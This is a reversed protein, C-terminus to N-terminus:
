DALYSPRHTVLSEGGAAKQSLAFNRQNRKSGTKKREFALHALQVGEELTPLPYGDYPRNISFKLFYYDRYM